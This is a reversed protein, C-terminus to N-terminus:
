SIIVGQPTLNLQKQCIFALYVNNVVANASTGYVVFSYQHMSDLDLGDEVTWDVECVPDCCFNDIHVFDNNFANINQIASHAIHGKNYTFYEGSQQTAANNYAVINSNSLIPIQDMLTNYTILSYGGQGAALLSNLAHDQATNNVESPNFISTLVMLLRKGFGRTLQQTISISGSAVAQRQIFPYPFPLSLGGGRMVKEVVGQSVSLNQETYLYLNLNSITFTGTPAIAGTQPATASTGGWAFKNVPAWYLSILLQEGSFYLLQDVDFLTGSLAGLDVEFSVSSAAAATASVMLKRIGSGPCGYDNGLGDPNATQFNRSIEEYPIAQGAAQTAPMPPVATLTASYGPSSKDNLEVYSTSPPIIMSAYRSVNPLDLLVNNTNQSTVVIRDLQCFANAQAWTYTLAAQAPLSLDWSLKSRKLSVVKSPVLIEIPGYGSTLSLNFTQINNIPASKIYLPSSHNGVKHTYDVEPSIKQVVTAM